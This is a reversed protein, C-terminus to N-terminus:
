PRRGRAIKACAPIALESGVGYEEALRGVTARITSRIHPQQRMVLGATRVSGGLMGEWLQDADPVHQTLSVTRVDVDELGAGWLLARFEADDAFRYPDPAALTEPRRTM